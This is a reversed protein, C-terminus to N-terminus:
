PLHAIWARVVATLAVRKAAVDAADRFEVIARDKALWELLGQPDPIDVGTASIASKKAGFHLILGIGHKRRLHMTAFDDSLRFSPANWRIGEGIRPDADLLLRRLAHLADAHPHALADIYAAVDTAPARKTAPRRAPSM